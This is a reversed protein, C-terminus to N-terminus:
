PAEDASSAWVEWASALEQVKGPHQEALNELENGDAELYYLEWPDEDRAVLKWDGQRVARGHAWKWFLIEHEKRHQHHLIPLLSNGDLDLPRVSDGRRTEVPDIGATELITAAIDMNHGVQRVLRGPEQIGEPWQVILPTRIGGEHDYQKFLRYPTNSLNAWGRGYSQYTEEPGPMIEPLNGNQVPRGDRTEEPLFDGTRSPPLEVHCGGNDSLFFILTNEFQGTRRLADLILGVNQDMRDIQAAYVEMRRAQWEKSEDPVDEWAPVEPDRPSLPWDKDLLGLGRMRRYRRERLVDWGIDYRGEYKDIDEPLAHLPWHPATFAVYGFFPADRATAEEIYRVAQTGIADTYYFDEQLFEEEASENGRTLSSPAFFSGAGIITGFFSDFGRQLPWNAKDTPDKPALHWKGSIWTTYGVEGLVEAVTAARSRLSRSERDYARTHYTGTLLTARSPVCMNNTYFNTFQLGNRALADIAPTEIEGGYVGLDSYGMDDAMIIVINPPRELPEPGVERAAESSPTCAAVVYLTLSLLLFCASRPM